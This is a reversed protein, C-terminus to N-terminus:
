IKRLTIRNRGGKKSEYLSEDANKIMENLTNGIGYCIGISVTFKIELEEYKISNNEITLRLKEFLKQTDEYSIDELLICFEEGGFRAVLDSGRMTEKLIEACRKLSFDGVDHGYTDNITKFRDIDLVAIVIDNKARKTKDFINQATKFFYRRNYLNTLFDKFAMMRNEEFLDLLDLIANVRTIVETRSYSKNIYDNAGLKIFETIVESEENSSLAIIGLQDKDYEERLKSVLEMGDMKPMNYDTLVLSFRKESSNLIDLAEVGNTAVEVNLKMDILIQKLMNRQVNSDDVILVNTDYNNLVRKITFISDKIGKKGDKVIFDLTTYQLLKDKMTRDYKGTLIVTPIKKSLTYNAMDGDNCDPLNLDIIAANISNKNNAICKIGEKYSSAELVELDEYNKLKDIIVSLIFKDDDVILLKKKM